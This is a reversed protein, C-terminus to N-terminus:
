AYVTHPFLYYCRYARELDVHLSRSLPYGGLSLLSGGGVDPALTRLPYARPEYDALVRQAFYCARVQESAGFQEFETMRASGISLVLLLALPILRRAAGFRLGPRGSGTDDPESLNAVTKRM